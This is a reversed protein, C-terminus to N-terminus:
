QQQARLLVGALVEAKFVSATTMRLDPRFAYDCGTRTDHVVASFRQNPWRQTLATALDVPFPSAPCAVTAAQAPDSGACPTLVALAAVVAAVAWRGLLRM